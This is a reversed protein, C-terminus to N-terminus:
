SINAFAIVSLARSKLFRSFVNAADGFAIVPNVNFCDPALGIPFRRGRMETDAAPCRFAADIHVSAGEKRIPSFESEVRELKRSQPGIMFVFLSAVLPFRPRELIGQRRRRAAYM